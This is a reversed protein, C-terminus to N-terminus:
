VRHARLRPRRPVALLSRPPSRDDTTRPRCFARFRPPFPRLPVDPSSSWPRAGRSPAASPAEARRACRASTIPSRTMTTSSSSRATRPPRGWRGRARRAGGGEVRGSGEGRRRRASRRARVGGRVGGGDNGGNGRDRIRVDDDDVSGASAPTRGLAGRRTCHRTRPPVRWTDEWLSPSEGLRHTDNQSAGKRM